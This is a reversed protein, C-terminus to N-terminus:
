RSLPQKQQLRLVTKYHQGPPLALGENTDLWSKSAAESLEKPRTTGLQQWLIRCSPSCFNEGWLTSRLKNEFEEYLQLGLAETVQILCQVFYSKTVPYISVSSGMFLIWLLISLSSNCEGELQLDKKAPLLSKLRESMMQHMKSHVPLERTELHLFLHAALRLPDALDIGQIRLIPHTIEFNQMQCLRYEVVYISHSISQRKLITPEKTEIDATIFRLSQIADFLPNWLDDRTDPGTDTGYFGSASIPTIVSPLMPFRLATNWTSAYAFDARRM